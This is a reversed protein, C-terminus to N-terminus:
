AAGAGLAWPLGAGPTLRRGLEALLAAEVGERGERAWVWSLALEEDVDELPVFAPSEPDPAYNATGTVAVREADAEGGSVSAQWLVSTIGGSWSDWEVSLVTWNVM